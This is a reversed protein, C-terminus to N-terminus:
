RISNEIKVTNLKQVWILVEWDNGTIYVEQQQSKQIHEEELVFGPIRNQQLVLKLNNVKVTSMLNFRSASQDLKKGNRKDLPTPTQLM